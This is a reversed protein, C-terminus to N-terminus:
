TGTYIPAGYSPLGTCNGNRAMVQVTYAEGCHLDYWTCSSTNTVCPHTHGDLGTAVAIYTQNINSANWSVSAISSNCESHTVVAQPMCPAVTKSFSTFLIKVIKSQNKSVM